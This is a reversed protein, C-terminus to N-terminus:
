LYNIKQERHKEVGRKNMQCYNKKMCINKCRRLFLVRLKWMIPLCTISRFNTMGSGKDKDKVKLVTKGSILWEPVNGNQLAENLLAHLVPIVAKISKFWFGHVGHPGPAKWNPIKKIQIEVIAKTVILTEQKRIAGVNEEIDNLWDNCVKSESWIASWFAKRRTADPVISTEDKNGELEQFFRQQNSTFLRNQRFQDCRDDEHKIQIISRIIKM